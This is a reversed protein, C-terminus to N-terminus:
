VFKDHFHIQRVKKNQRIEGAIVHIIGGGAPLIYKSELSKHCDQNKPETM